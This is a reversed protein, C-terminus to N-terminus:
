IFVWFNQTEELGREIWLYTKSKLFFYLKCGCWRKNSYQKVIYNAIQIKSKLIINRDYFTKVVQVLM